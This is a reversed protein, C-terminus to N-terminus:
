KKTINSDKEKKIRIFSYVYDSSLGMVPTREKLISVGM